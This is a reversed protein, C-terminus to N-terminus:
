CDRKLGDVSRRSGELEKIWQTQNLKLVMM